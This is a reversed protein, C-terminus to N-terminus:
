LVETLIIDSTEVINYRAEVISFQGRRCLWSKSTDGRNEFFVIFDDRDIAKLTWLGSENSAPVGRFVIRREWKLYDGLRIVEEGGSSFTEVSYQKEADKVMAYSPNRAPELETDLCLVRGIRFYAAGDTTVQNPVVIQLSAASFGALAVDAKYRQVEADRAITAASGAVTCSTFNCDDLFVRKIAKTAGFSFTITSANLNVTRFQRRLHNYIKLNTAPYAANENACAPTYDVPNYGFKFNNGM